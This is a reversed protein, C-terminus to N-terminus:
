STATDTMAQRLETIGDGKESSTLLIDPHAAPHKAAKAAISERTADAMTPKIKDIKTLVLQYPVAAEDLLEMTEIDVPKLGHRSDILLHVRRLNPRGRLYNRTLGTWADVATRSARAYGYGPLDVLRLVGGLDFFNLERTRGPTNSTRALAKRNTLANIISSKGVNSRGAFAFEPLDTPPLAQMTTVGLMFDCPGAFLKHATIEQTM